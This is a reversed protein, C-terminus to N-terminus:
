EEEYLYNLSGFNPIFKVPILSSAVQNAHEKISAELKLQMSVWQGDSKM